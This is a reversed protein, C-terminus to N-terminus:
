RWAILPHGALSMLVGILFIVAVLALIVRAVKDFPEPLGVQAILWYLLYFVLGAVIIYVLLMLLASATIM